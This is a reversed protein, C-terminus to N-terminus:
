RTGHRKSPCDDCHRVWQKGKKTITGSVIAGCGSSGVGGGPTYDIESADYAYQWSRKRQFEIVIASVVDNKISALRSGNVIRYRKNCVTEPELMPRRRNTRDAVNSLWAEILVYGAQAREACCDEDLFTPEDDLVAAILACYEEAKAPDAAPGTLLLAILILSHM